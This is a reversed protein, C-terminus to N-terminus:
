CAFIINSIEYFFDSKSSISFSKSLFNVEFLVFCTSTSFSNFLSDSFTLAIDVFPNVFSKIFLNIM